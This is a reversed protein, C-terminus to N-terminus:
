RRGSVTLGEMQLNRLWLFLKHGRHPLTQTKVLGLLALCGQHDSIGNPGVVTDEGDLHLVLM